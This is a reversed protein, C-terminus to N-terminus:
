GADHRLRCRATPARQVVHGGADAPLGGHQAPHVGGVAAADGGRQM